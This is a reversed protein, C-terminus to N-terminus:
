TIGHRHIIAKFDVSLLRRLIRNKKKRSVDSRINKEERNEEKKRPNPKTGCFNTMLTIVASKSEDNGVSLPMAFLVDSDIYSM